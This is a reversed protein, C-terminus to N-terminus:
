KQQPKYILKDSPLFVIADRYGPLVLIAEEHEKRNQEFREIDVVYLDLPVGEKVYDKKVYWSECFYWLEKLYEYPHQQKFEALGEPGGHHWYMFPTYMKEKEPSIQLSNVQSFGTGGAFLL